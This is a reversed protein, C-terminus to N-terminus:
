VGRVGGLQAAGQGAAAAGCTAWRGDHAQLLLLLMLLLLLLLV